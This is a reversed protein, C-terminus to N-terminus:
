LVLESISSVPRINCVKKCVWCFVDVSGWLRSVSFRKINQVLLWKKCFKCQFNKFFSSDLDTIEFNIDFETQSECSSISTDMDFNFQFEDRLFDMGEGRPDNEHLALPWRGNFIRNLQEFQFGCELISRFFTIPWVSFAVLHNAFIKHNDARFM